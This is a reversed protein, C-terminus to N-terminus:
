DRPPAGTGMRMLGTQPHETPSIQGPLYSDTYNQHLMALHRDIGTNVNRHGPFHVRRMMGEQVMTRPTKMLYQSEEIAACSFGGKAMTARRLALCMDSQELQVRDEQRAMTASM